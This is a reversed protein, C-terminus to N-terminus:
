RTGKGSSWTTSSPPLPPCFGIPLMGLDSSTDVTPGMFATSTANAGIETWGFINMFFSNTKSKNKVWIGKAAERGPSLAMDGVQVLNEGDGIVQKDDNVYYAVLDQPNIGHRAAYDDIVQRIEVDTEPAGDVDGDPYEAVMQMYRDLVHFM